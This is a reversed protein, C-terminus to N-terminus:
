QYDHEFTFHMNICLIYPIGRLTLKLLPKWRSKFNEFKFCLFCVLIFLTKHHCRTGRHDLFYPARSLMRHWECKLMEPELRKPPLKQKFLSTRLQKYSIQQHSVSPQLNREMKKVVTEEIAVWSSVGKMTSFLGGFCLLVFLVM